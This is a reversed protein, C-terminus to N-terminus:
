GAMKEQLLSNRHQELRIMYIYIYICILLYIQQWNLAPCVGCSTENSMLLQKAIIRQGFSCVISEAMKM